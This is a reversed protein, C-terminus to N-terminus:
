EDSVEKLLVYRKRGEENIQIDYLKIDPDALQIILGLILQFDETQYKLALGCSASISEPTPILRAKLSKEKVWSEMTLAQHTSNFAVLQEM